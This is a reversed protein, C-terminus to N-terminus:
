RQQKQRNYRDYSELLTTAKYCGGKSEAKNQPKFCFVPVFSERQRLCQYSGKIDSSIPEIRKVSLNRTDSVVSIEKVLLKLHPEVTLYQFYDTSLM